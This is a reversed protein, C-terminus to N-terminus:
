LTKEGPIGNDLPPVTEAPNKTKSESRIGETNGQNPLPRSTKPISTPGKRGSPLPREDPLPEEVSRENAQREEMQQPQKSFRGQPLEQPQTQRKPIRPLEQPLLPHYTAEDSVEYHPASLFVNGHADIRVNVNELEQERSSSINTGNLYLMRAPFRTSEESGKKSHRPQMQPIAPPTSSGEKTTRDKVWAPPM